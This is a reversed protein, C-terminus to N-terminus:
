KNKVHGIFHHDTLKKNFHKRRTCGIFLIWRLNRFKYTRFIPISVINFSKGDIIYNLLVFVKNSFNGYIALTRHISRCFIIIRFQRRNRTESNIKVFNGFCGSHLCSSIKTCIVARFRLLNKRILYTTYVLV